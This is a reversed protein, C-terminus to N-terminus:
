CIRRHRLGIEASRLKSSGAAGPATSPAGAITPPVAAAIPAGIDARRELLAARRPRPRSGRGRRAVRDRRRRGWRKQGTESRIVVQEHGTRTPKSWQEAGEGARLQRTALRAFAQCAMVKRFPAGGRPWSFARSAPTRVPRDDPKVPRGAHPVESVFKHASRVVSEPSAFPQTRGYPSPVRHSAFALPCPAASWRSGKRM